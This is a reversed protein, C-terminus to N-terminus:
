RYGQRRQDAEYASGSDVVSQPILDDLNIGANRFRRQWNDNGIESARGATWYWTDDLESYELIPKMMVEGNAWGHVAVVKDLLRRESRDKQRVARLFVILHISRGIKQEIQTTDHASEPNEFVYGTLQPIADEAVDAHITCASGSFGTSMARLMYHAEGGRVEGVILRNANMRLSERVLVSMGIYGQGESNGPRSFLEFTDTNPRLYRLMLERDDEVVGLREDDPITAGFARLWTTKGTNVGGAFLVNLRARVVAKMFDPFYAPMAHGDTYLRDFNAFRDPQHNRLTICPSPDAVETAIHCRQGTPIIVTGIPNAQSIKASASRGNFYNVIKQYVEDPDKFTLNARYRKGDVFYYCDTPGNLHINQITNDHLLTMLPGLPHNDMMVQSAILELDRMGLNVMNHAKVYQAAAECRQELWEEDEENPALELSDVDRGSLRKRIEDQIIKNLLDYAQSLEPDSKLVMKIQDLMVPPNEDSM